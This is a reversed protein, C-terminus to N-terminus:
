SELDEKDYGFVFDGAGYTDFFVMYEDDVFPTPFDIRRHFVNTGFRLNSFSM